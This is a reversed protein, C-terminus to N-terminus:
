NLYVTFVYHRLNDATYVRDLSTYLQAKLFDNIIYDDVHKTIYKVSFKVVSAYIKGNSYRNDVIGPDIVFCPYFLKVNEPPAYYVKVDEFTESLHNMFQDRRESYNILDM